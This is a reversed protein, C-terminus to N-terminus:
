YVEVWRGITTIVDDYTGSEAESTFQQVEDESVGARKLARRTRAIMFFANADEGSLQVSVNPYKPQSM